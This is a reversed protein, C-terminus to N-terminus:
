SGQWAKWSSGFECAHMIPNLYLKDRSWSNVVFAAVVLGEGAIHLVGHSVLDVVTAFEAEESLQYAMLTIEMYWSDASMEKQDMYGSMFGNTAVKQKSWCVKRKKISVSTWYNM